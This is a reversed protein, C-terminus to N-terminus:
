AGSVLFFERGMAFLGGAMMPSRFNNTMPDEPTLKNSPEPLWYFYRFPWPLLSTFSHFYHM